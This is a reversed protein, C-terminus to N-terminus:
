FLIKPIQTLLPFAMIDLINKSITHCEKFFRQTLGVKLKLKTATQIIHEKMIKPHIPEVQRSKTTLKLKEGLFYEAM